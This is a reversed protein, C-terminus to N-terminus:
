FVCPLLGIEVALPEDVGAVFHRLAPRSITAATSKKDRTDAAVIQQWHPRAKISTQTPLRAQMFRSVVGLLGSQLLQQPRKCTKYIHAIFITCFTCLLFRAFVFFILFAFFL